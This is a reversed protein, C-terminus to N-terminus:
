KPLTELRRNVEDWNVNLMFADIYKAASAGYDMQYSHEYMDLVLLPISFPANHAHDSAWYNHLQKTHLNFALITWGSGGSLAVATKKFEMEWTEFNGFWKELEKKATGDAKGNGGLNDFYNEHLVVSGTRILEERKLDGYLYAPLDKEKQFQYLKQEVANLAKVSGIYNNEWHSKILKESIGTLKAADFPLPKPQHRGLFANPVTEQATANESFSLVAASTAAIGLIAERRSFKNM